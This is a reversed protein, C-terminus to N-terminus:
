WNVSAHQMKKALPQSATAQEAASRTVDHGPGAVVQLLSSAMSFITISGAFAWAALPVRTKVPVSGITRLM